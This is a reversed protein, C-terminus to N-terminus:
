KPAETPLSHVAPTPSIVIHIWLFPKTVKKIDVPGYKMGPITRICAPYSIKNTKGELGFEIEADFENLKSSDGGVLFFYQEFDQKEGENIMKFPKDIYSFGISFKANDMDKGGLTALQPAKLFEFASYGHRLEVIYKGHKQNNYPIFKHETM